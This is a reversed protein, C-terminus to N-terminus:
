SAWKLPFNIDVVTKQPQWCGWAWVLAVDANLRCEIVIQFYKFLPNM